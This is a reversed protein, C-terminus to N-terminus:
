QIGGHSDKSRPAGVSLADTVTKQDHQSEDLDPNMAYEIDRVPTDEYAHSSGDSLSRVLRIFTDDLWPPSWAGSRAVATKVFQLNQPMDELGTLVEVEVQHNSLVPRNLVAYPSEATTGYRKSLSWQPYILTLKGICGREILCKVWSGCHLGEKDGGYGLDHHADIHVLWAGKLDCFHHYAHHHQDMVGIGNPKLTVGRAALWSGMGEPKPHERCSLTIEQRLDIGAEAAKKIRYLWEIYDTLGGQEAVKPHYQPRCSVWFDFDISLIANM